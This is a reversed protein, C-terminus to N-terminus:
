LSKSLRVIEARLLSEVKVALLLNHKKLTPLLSPFYKETEIIQRRVKMLDKETVLPLSRLNHIRDGCKVLCARWSTKKIISFYQKLYADKDMNTLNRKSLVEVDRSVTKGFIQRIREITMLHTDEPCDHLLTVIHTELDLVGLEKAIIRSVERPHNFYREGTDRVQKLYGHAYKSLDYAFNLLFLEKKSFDKRFLAFYQASGKPGKKIAPM